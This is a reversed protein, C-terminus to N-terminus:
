DVPRTLYARVIASNDLEGFGAAVLDDLLQLHVNSLPLEINATRAAALMLQVDKRHQSLKAQPTFDGRLMKQGKTDMMRSYAPSGILARLSSNLDLQLANALALSEALVARHLGIALNVVLKMKAASGVPGTFFIHLSLKELLSRLLSNDANAGGVLLTAEGRRLQESSGVVTTDMYTARRIALKNNVEITSQPDGTTTDCIYHQESIWNIAKDIVEQVINSNPLSLIVWSCQQFVEELGEASKGGLQSVRVCNQPNIDYGVVEMGSQLLREAIATGLLGVGILGIKPSHAHQSGSATM